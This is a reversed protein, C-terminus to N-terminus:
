NVSFYYRLGLGADLDVGGHHTLQFVPVIELFIEVPDHPLWYAIGAVTRLGLEDSAIQAGLGLYVPLRGRAPQPLVQWSHWLYDSYLTLHHNFGVGVDLAQRDYLWLKGTVGTPDGLIVGAGLDGAKQGWVPGAGAALMCVLFLLKKMLYTEGASVSNRDAKMNIYYEVAGM